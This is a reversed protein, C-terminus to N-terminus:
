NVNICCPRKKIRFFGVKLAEKFDNESEFVLDNGEIKSTKMEYFHPICKKGIDDPVKAEEMASLSSMVALPLALKMIRSKKM